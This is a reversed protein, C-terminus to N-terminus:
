CGGAHEAGETTPLIGLPVMCAGLCLPVPDGLFRCAKRDPHYGSKMRDLTRNVVAGRLPAGPCGKALRHTRVFSYAGCCWCFVGSQEQSWTYLRHPAASADVCASHQCLESQRRVCRMCRLHEGVLALSHAPLKYIRMKQVQAGLGRQGFIERPKSWLLLRGYYRWVYLSLQRVKAVRERAPAAVEGLAAGRKAISDAWNNGHRRAALVPSHEVSCKTAHAKVKVLRTNHNESRLELVRLWLSYYPTWPNRVDIAGSM